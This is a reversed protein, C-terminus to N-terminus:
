EVIMRYFSEPETSSNTSWMMGDVGPIGEVVNSWSGLVLDLKRQVSYIGDLSGQWGLVVQTGDLDISIMGIEPPVRIGQRVNDIYFDAGRKGAGGNSGFEVQRINSVDVKLGLGAVNIIETGEGGDEQLVRLDYTDSAGSLDSITIETRYWVGTSLQVASVDVLGSGDHNKVTKSTNNFFNLLIATDTGSNDKAFFTPNQTGSDIRFDFSFVEQTISQSFENRIRLDYLGGDDQDVYHLSQSRSSFGSEHGAVSVSQTPSSNIEIWGNIGDVSNGITYVEFNDSLPERPVKQVPYINDLYFSSGGGGPGANTAFEMLKIESIDTMFAIGSVNIIETGAGGDEQLIRLDFTDSSGSVDAVTIEARYWTQLSLQNTAVNVYSSGDFYRVTGSTSGFFNLLVGLTNATDRLFFSPNLGANDVRFDFMFVGNTVSSVLTNKIRADYLGGTDADVYHLSLSGSSFGSEVEAVTGNQTSSANQVSWGNVGGISDGAVFGEFDEVAAQSVCGISMMCGIWTIIKKKM